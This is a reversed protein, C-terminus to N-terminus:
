EALVTTKIPSGDALSSYNNNFTTTNIQFAIVDAVLISYNVSATQQNSFDIESTKFYLAGELGGKGGFVSPQPPTANRDQFFLIGELPGSKPAKLTITANNGTTVAGSGYPYTSNATIYFTVDTGTVTSSSGGQATFGTGGVLIYTGANFTVKATGEVDIGGCYVGPNLTWTGTSKTWNTQSCGGVVPPQLYALPDSVPVIGTSIKGSPTSGSYGGVMSITPASISGSNIIASSSNSNVMIGCSSNVADGGNTVLTGSKSPNLSFMCSKASSIDAVARANVPLSSYGLASLFYTQQPQSIIVEVYNGNGANPGSTPPNNVTIKAAATGDTFGNQSADSLAATTASGLKLQSAGALAAADAASQMRGKQHQLWGVDVALAAFGLLVVIGLTTLVFM